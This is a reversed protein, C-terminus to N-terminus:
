CSADAAIALARAGQARRAIEQDPCPAIVPISRDIHVGSSGKSNRALQKQPIGRSALSSQIEFAPGHRHVVLDEDAVIAASARHGHGSARQGLGAPILRKDTAVSARASEGLATTRDRQVVIEIHALARAGGSSVVNTAAGDEVDPTIKDDTPLTARAREIHRAARDGLGPILLEEDTM